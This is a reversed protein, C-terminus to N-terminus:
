CHTNIGGGRYAALSSSPQTYTTQLPKLVWCCGSVPRRSLTGLSHPRTQVLLAGYRITYKQRKQLFFVSQLM